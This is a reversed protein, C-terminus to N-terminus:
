NWRAQHSIMNQAKASDAFRSTQRAIKSTGFANPGMSQKRGLPSMPDNYHGM